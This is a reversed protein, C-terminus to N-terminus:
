TTPLGTRRASAAEQGEGNRPTLSRAALQRRIQQVNDIRVPHEDDGTLLAFRSREMGSAGKEARYHLWVGPALYCSATGDEYGQWQDEDSLYSTSRDIDWTAYAARCAADQKTATVAQALSEPLTAPTRRGASRAPRRRPVLTDFVGVISAATIGTFALRADGSWSEPTVDYGVLAGVTGGVILTGCRTLREVTATFRPRRDGNM